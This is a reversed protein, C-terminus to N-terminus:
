NDEIEVIKFRTPHCQSVHTINRFAPPTQLLTQQLINSFCRKIGKSNDFQLPAFLLPHRKLRQSPVLLRDLKKNQKLSVLRKLLHTRSLNSLNLSQLM